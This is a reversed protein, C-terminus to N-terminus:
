QWFPREDPSYTKGNYVYKAVLCENRETKRNKSYYNLLIDGIEHQWCETSYTTNPFKKNKKLYIVLKARVPINKQPISHFHFDGKYKHRELRLIKREYPTKTWMSKDRPTIHPPRIGLEVMLKDNHVDVRRDEERQPAKFPSKTNEQKM